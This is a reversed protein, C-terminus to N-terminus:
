PLVSNRDLRREREEHSRQAEELPLAELTATVIVPDLTLENRSALRRWKTQVEHLDLPGAQFRALIARGTSEDRFGSAETLPISGSYLLQEVRLYALVHVERYSTGRQLWLPGGTFEIEQHMGPTCPLEGENWKRKLIEGASLAINLDDPIAPGPPGDPFLVPELRAPPWSFALSYERAVRFDCLVPVSAVARWEHEGTDLLRLLDIGANRGITRAARTFGRASVVAGKNARIDKALGIFAEVDKVDVPESSDKCEMAILMPFQGAMAHIAVDVQRLRRSDVGMIREDHEVRAGPSLRSQVDAVLREFKRWKPNKPAGNM